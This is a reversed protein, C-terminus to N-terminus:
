QRTEFAMNEWYNVLDINGLYSLMSNLSVSEATTKLHPPEATPQQPLRTAKAGTKAFIEPM